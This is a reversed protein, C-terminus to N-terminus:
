KKEMVKYSVELEYRCFLDVMIDFIDQKKLGKTKRYEEIGKAKQADKIRGAYSPCRKDYDIKSQKSKESLEM